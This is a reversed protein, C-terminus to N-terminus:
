LVACCLSITLYHQFWSRLMCTSLRNHQNADAFSGIFSVHCSSRMRGQIYLAHIHNHPPCAQPVQLGSTKVELLMFRSSQAQAQAQSM